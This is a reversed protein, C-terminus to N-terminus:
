RIVVGTCWTIDSRATNAPRSPGFDASRFLFQMAIIADDMRFQEPLHLSIRFQSSICSNINQLSLDLFCATRTFCLCIVPHGLMIGLIVRRYQEFVLLM